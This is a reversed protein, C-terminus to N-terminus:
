DTDLESTLRVSEKLALSVGRKATKMGLSLATRSRRKLKSIAGEGALLVVLDDRKGCCSFNLM